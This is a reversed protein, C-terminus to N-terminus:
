KHHIVCCYFDDHWWTPYQKHKVIWRFLPIDFIKLHFTMREDGIRRTGPHEVLSFSNALPWQACTSMNHKILVTVWYCPSTLIQQQSFLWYEAGARPLGLEGLRRHLAPPQVVSALRSLQWRSVRCETCHTSIASITYINHLYQASISYICHLYLTSITSITHIYM